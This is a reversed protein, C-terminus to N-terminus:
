REKIKIYGERGERMRERDRDKLMERYDIKKKQRIRGEDRENEREIYWEKNM